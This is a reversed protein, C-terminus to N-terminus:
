GAFTVPATASHPSVETDTCMEGHMPNAYANPYSDSHCYCYCNANCNNNTDRVSHGSSDANLDPDM